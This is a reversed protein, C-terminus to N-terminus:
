TWREQVPFSNGKETDPEGFAAPSTCANGTSGVQIPVRLSVCISDDLAQYKDKLGSGPGTKKLEAEPDPWTRLAPCKQNVNQGM